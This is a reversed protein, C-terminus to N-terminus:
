LIPLPLRAAYGLGRANRPLMHLTASVSHEGSPPQQPRFHTRLHTMILRCSQNKMMPLSELGMYTNRRHSNQRFGFRRSSLHCYTIM